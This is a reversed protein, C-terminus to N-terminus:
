QVTTSMEDERVEERRKEHRTTDHTASRMEGTAQLATPPSDNLLGNMHRTRTITWRLALRDSYRVRCALQTIAFRVDFDLTRATHTGDSRRGKDDAPAATNVQVLLASLPPLAASLAALWCYSAALCDSGTSQVLSLLM